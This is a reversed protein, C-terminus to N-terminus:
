VDSWRTKGTRGLYAVTLIALPVCYNWVTAFAM